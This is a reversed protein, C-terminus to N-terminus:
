NEWEIDSGIGIQIFELGSLYTTDIGLPIDTQGIQYMYVM